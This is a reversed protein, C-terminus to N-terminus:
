GWTKLHLHSRGCHCLSLPHGQGTAGGTRQSTVGGVDPVLVSLGQGAWPSLMVEQVQVWDATLICAAVGTSYFLM